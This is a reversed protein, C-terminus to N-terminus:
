THLHSYHESYIYSRNVISFLGVSLVQRKGDLVLWHLGERQSVGLVIHLPPFPSLSKWWMWWYVLQLPPLWVVVFHNVINCLIKQEKQSHHHSLVSQIRKEKSLSIKETRCSRVQVRERISAPNQHYHFLLIETLNTLVFYFFLAGGMCQMKM